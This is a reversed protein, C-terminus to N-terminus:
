AAQQMKEESEEVTLQLQFTLDTLDSGQLAKEIYHVCDFDAAALAQDEM